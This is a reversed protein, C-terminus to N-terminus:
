GNASPAGKWCARWARAGGLVRGATVCVCGGGGGFPQGREEGRVQSGSSVDLMKHLDLYYGGQFVRARAGPQHEVHSPATSGQLSPAASAQTPPRCKPAGHGTLARSGPVCCHCLASVGPWACAAPLRRRSAPKLPLACCFLLSKPTPPLAPRRVLIPTPLDEEGIPIMPSGGETNWLMGTQLWACPPPMGYLM